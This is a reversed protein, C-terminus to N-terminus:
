HFRHYGNGKYCEKQFILSVLKLFVCRFHLNVMCVRFIFSCWKELDVHNTVILKLFFSVQITALCENSKIVFFINRQKKNCLLKEKKDLFKYLKEQRLPYLVFYHSFIYKLSHYLYHFPIIYSNKIYFCLVYQM